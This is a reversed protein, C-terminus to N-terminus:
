QENDKMIEGADLASFWDPYLPQWGTALLRANSVKKHTWGRKRALDPPADSPLPLHFRQALSTFLPRQLLPVSDAINFLRPAEVALDLQLLFAIARAADKVHIQNVWRGDPTAPSESRVDIVSQGALFNKLLVSRGPGYIGALRGVMGGAALTEDETQRLIQGTERDPQAPTTETVTEGSIQPYVSTSSTFFFRGAQPFALRLNRCGELYIARYAEARGGRGSAACHVIHLNEQPYTTALHTAAAIASHHATLDCAFAPIGAAALAAASEERHTLGLVPRGASILERALFTGLYGCGAIVTLTSM